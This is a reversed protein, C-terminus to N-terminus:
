HKVEFWYRSIVEGADGFSSSECLVVQMPDVGCHESWKVLEVFIGTLRASDAMSENEADLTM